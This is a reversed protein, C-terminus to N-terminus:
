LQYEIVLEAGQATCYINSMVFGNQSLLAEDGPSIYTRVMLAILEESGNGCIIRDPNLGHTEAIAQRLATQAGEPYRNLNAAAEHFAAIAAPSPGQSCENSSLKIPNEVGAIQSQGQQYPSLKSISEIAKLETM